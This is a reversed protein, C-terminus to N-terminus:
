DFVLEGKRIYETEDEVAWKTVANDEINKESEQYLSITMQLLAMAALFLIPFIIAAEVMATGKSNLIKKAKAM